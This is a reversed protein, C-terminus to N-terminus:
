RGLLAQISAISRRVVTIVPATAGTERYPIFEIQAFEPTLLPLGQRKADFDWFATGISIEDKDLGTNLVTHYKLMEWDVERIYDVKGNLRLVIKDIVDDNYEGTNDIATMLFSRITRGKEKWDFIESLGTIPYDLEYEQIFLSGGVQPRSSIEADDYWIECVMNTLTVTGPVTYMEAKTLTAVKIDLNDKFPRTDFLTRNPFLGTPDQMWLRYILAFEKGIGTDTLPVNKYLREGQLCNDLAYLSYGRMSKITNGNARLQVQKLLSEAHKEILTTNFTATGKIVVDIAKLTADAPLQQINEDSETIAFSKVKRLM